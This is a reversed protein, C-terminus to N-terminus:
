KRMQMYVLSRFDADPELLTIDQFLPDSSIDVPQALLPHLVVDGALLCSIGACYLHSQLFM